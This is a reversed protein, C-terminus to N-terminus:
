KIQKLKQEVMFTLGLSAFTVLLISFLVSTGIDMKVIFDLMSILSLGIGMWLMVDASYRQAVDWKEQSSRSQKTRYGYFANIKKPPKLKTIIASVIFSLGSGLCTVLFIKESIKSVLDTM